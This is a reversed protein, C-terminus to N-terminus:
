EAGGAEVQDQREVRLRPTLLLHRYRRDLDERSDGASRRGSRARSRLGAGTRLDVHGDRSPNLSRLRSFPVAVTRWEPGTKVSAFWWEEADDRSAANKDRVQLWIRYVGDGKITLTLGRAGVLTRPTRDVLACWVNPRAPGPSGLRFALRAM